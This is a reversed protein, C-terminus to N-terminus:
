EMLLRFPGDWSYMLLFFTLSGSGEPIKEEM